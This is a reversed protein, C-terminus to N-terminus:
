TGTWARSSSTARGRTRAVAPDPGDWAQLDTGHVQWGMVVREGDM